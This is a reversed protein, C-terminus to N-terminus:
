SLSNWGLNRVAGNGKMERFVRQVLTTISVLM